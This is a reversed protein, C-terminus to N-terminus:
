NCSNSQEAFLNAQHLSNVIDVAFLVTSSNTLLGSIAVSIDGYWFFNQAHKKSFKFAFFM